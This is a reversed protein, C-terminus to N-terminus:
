AKSDLEIRHAGAFLDAHNPHCTFLIVQREAGYEAIARAAGARRQPDMDVLPDDLLLPAEADRLATEALALRIALAVMDRTGQSLLEYDLEPGAGRRYRGPLLPDDSAIPRYDEGSAVDLYATVRRVYPEFPDEREEAITEEVARELRARAAGRRRARAYRHEAEGVLEEVEESTRDPLQALLGAQRVRAEHQASRLEELSHERSRYESLFEKTSGFGEPVTGAAAREAELTSLRSRSRALMDELVDQSEYRETLSKQEQELSRRGAEAAGLRGQADALARALSSEDAPMARADDGRAAAGAAFEERLTELSEGALTETLRREAAALERVAGARASRRESAEEASAVGLEKTLAEVRAAAEDFRSHLDAFSEEGSEVEVVLDDTEIRFRRHAELDLGRDPGATLAEASRDDAEVTVSRGSGSMVRARLSGLSLRARLEDRQKETERLSSLRADDVPTISEVRGRIEAVEEAAKAAREYLARRAAIRRQEAAEALRVESGSVDVEAMAIDRTQREIEELVVPWRRVAARLDALSRTESEIARDLSEVKALSEYAERYALLFESALRLKESRSELEATASQLEREVRQTEALEERVTELEYYAALIEGVDNRWPREIGRGGEPRDRERDWRGFSQKLRDTLGRRFAEVSVGGTEERTRRLLAAVEDRSEAHEKASLQDITADLQAQDILFISAYTGPRVPLLSRVREDAEAGTIRVGDATTLM